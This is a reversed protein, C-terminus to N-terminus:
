GAAVRRRAERKGIGESAQLAYATQERPKMPGAEWQYVASHSVGLLQALEAQTVGLKSRARMFVAPTAKFRRGKRVAM